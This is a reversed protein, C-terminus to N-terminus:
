IVKQVDSRSRPFQRVVPKRAYAGKTCSAGPTTRLRLAESHIMLGSAGVGRGGGPKM